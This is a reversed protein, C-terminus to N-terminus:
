PAHLDPSQVPVQKVTAVTRGVLRQVRQARLEEPDGLAVVGVHLHVAVQEALEGVQERAGPPVDGQKLFARRPPRLRECARAVGHRVPHEGRAVVHEEELAREV